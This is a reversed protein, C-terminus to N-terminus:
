VVGIGNHRDDDVEWGRNCRVLDTRVNLTMEATEEVAVLRITVTTRFAHLALCSAPIHM